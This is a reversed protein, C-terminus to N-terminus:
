PAVFRDVASLKQKGAVDKAVFRIDANQPHAMTLTVRVSESGDAPVTVPM